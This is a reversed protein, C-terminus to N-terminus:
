CLISFAKPGSQQNFALGSAAGVTLHLTGLNPMAGLMKLAQRREALDVVTPMICDLLTTTTTFM